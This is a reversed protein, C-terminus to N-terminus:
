VQRLIVFPVAWIAGPGRLLALSADAALAAVSYLTFCVISCVTIAM